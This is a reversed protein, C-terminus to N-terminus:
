TYPVMYTVMRTKRPDIFANAAGECTRRSAARLSMGQPGNGSIFFRPLRRRHGLLKEARDTVQVFSATLTDAVAAEALARVLDAQAFIAVVVATGAAFGAVQFGLVEGVGSSRSTIPHDSARRYDIWTAPLKM